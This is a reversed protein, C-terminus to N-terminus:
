EYGLLNEIEAIMDNLRKHLELRPNICPNGFAVDSIHSRAQILHEKHAPTLENVHIPQLPGTSMTLRTTAGDIAQAM